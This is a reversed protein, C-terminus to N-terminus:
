AQPDNRVAIFSAVVGAPQGSHPVTRIVTGVIAPVAKVGDPWAPALYGLYNYIWGKTGDSDGNGQFRVAFPNGYTITGKLALGDDGFSLRGDLVGFDADRLVITGVAFQLKDFPLLPDPLNLFSRYTWTGVFPSKSSGQSSSPAQGDARADAAGFGVLGIAGLGGLLQRRTPRPFRGGHEHATM